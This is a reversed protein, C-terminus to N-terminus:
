APIWCESAQPFAGWIWGQGWRPSPEGFGCLVLVAAVAVVEQSPQDLRRSQGLSGTVPGDLPFAGGGFGGGGGEEAGEGREPEVVM